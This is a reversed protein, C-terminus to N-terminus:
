RISHWSQSQISDDSSQAWQGQRLGSLHSYLVSRNRSRQQLIHFSLHHFILFSLQDTTQHHDGGFTLGHDGERVGASLFTGSRREIIIIFPLRRPSAEKNRIHTRGFWYRSIYGNFGKSIYGEPEVTLTTHYKRRFVYPM